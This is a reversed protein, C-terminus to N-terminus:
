IKILNGVPILCYKKNEYKGRDQRAKYESQFKDFIEMDYKIYYLGDSFKFVFYINFTKHHKKAYTIKNIGIITTKYYDKCIKRTKLEILTKESFYDFLSYTNTSMKLDKDKFFEKLLEYHNIESQYGIEADDMSTESKIEEKVQKKIFMSLTM